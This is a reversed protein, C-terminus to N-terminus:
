TKHFGVAEAEPGAKQDAPKAMGVTMAQQQM